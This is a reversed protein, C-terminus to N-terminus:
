LQSRGAVLQRLRHVFSGGCLRATSVSASWAGACPGSRRRFGLLFVVDDVRLKDVYVVLLLLHPPGTYGGMSGHRGCLIKVLGELDVPLRRCVVDPLRVPAKRALIVRVEIRAVLGGLITELLQLFRVVNQAVRLFALHVILLPEIRIRPEGRAGAGRM